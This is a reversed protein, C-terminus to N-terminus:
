WFVGRYRSTLKRENPPVPVPVVDLLGMSHNNPRNPDISVSIQDYRIAAEGDTPFYGGSYMQGDSHFRAQWTGSPQHFVVGMFPSQGAPRGRHAREAATMKTLHDPNICGKTCTERAQISITMPDGVPGTYLPADEPHFTEWVYKGLSRKIGDPQSTQAACGVPHVWCHTEGDVTLKNRVSAALRLIWVRTSPAVDEFTPPKKRVRVPSEPNTRPRGPTRHPTETLMTM